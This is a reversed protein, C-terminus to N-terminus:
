KATPSNNASAISDVMDKYEPAIMEDATRILDGIYPTDNLLNSTYFHKIALKVALGVLSSAMGSFSELTNITSVTDPHILPKFADLQGLASIIASMDSSAASGVSSAQALDLGISHAIEKYIPNSNALM